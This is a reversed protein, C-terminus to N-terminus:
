AAAAPSPRPFGNAGPGAARAAMGAGAVGAAADAVGAGSAAGAAGTPGIESPGTGAACYVHAGGRATIDLWIILLRWVGNVFLSTGRPVGYEPVLNYLEDPECLEVFGLRQAM